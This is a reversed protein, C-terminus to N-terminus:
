LSTAINRVQEKSLTGGSCSIKYLIGGNVWTSNEGRHYITIGQERIVTYDSPYTKKVYNNLLATSDWTSKEESLIFSMGGQSTFSIKVSGDKESTVNSLSFGRPIFSPYSAEIGTQMAAVKVSIDPMNFHVFAVLAAVSLASCFLALAIRRGRHKKKFSQQMAPTSETTKVDKLASKIVSTSPTVKTTSPAAKAKKARQKQLALKKQLAREKALQKKALREKALREAHAVKIAALKKAHAKKLAQKEHKKAESASIEVIKVKKPTKATTVTAESASTVNIKTRAVPRKVYRRSLTTSKQITRHTASSSVPHAVKKRDSEPSSVTITVKTM